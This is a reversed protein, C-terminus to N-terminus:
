FWGIKKELETWLFFLVLAALAEPLGIFVALLCFLMFGVIIAMLLKM